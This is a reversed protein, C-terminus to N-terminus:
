RSAGSIGIERTGAHFILTILIDNHTSDFLGDIDAIGNQAIDLEIPIYFVNQIADRRREIWYSLLLLFDLYQTTFETATQYNYVLGM